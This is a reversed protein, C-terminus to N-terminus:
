KPSSSSSNLAMSSPCSSASRSPSSCSRFSSCSQLDPHLLNPERSQSWPFSTLFTAVLFGAAFFAAVLVLVLLGAFLLFFYYEPNLDPTKKSFGRGSEYILYHRM